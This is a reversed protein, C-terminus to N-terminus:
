GCHLPSAFFFEGMLALASPPNSREGQPPVFALHMNVFGGPLDPFSSLPIRVFLL